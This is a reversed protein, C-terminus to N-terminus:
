PKLEILPLPLPTLTMNKSQQITTVLIFIIKKEELVAFFLTGPPPHPVHFLWPIVIRPWGREKKQWMRKRTTPLPPLITWSTTRTPYPHPSLTLPCDLLLLQPQQRPQWLQPLRLTRHPRTTTPSNIPPLLPHQHHTNLLHTSFTHQSPPNILHSSPLTSLLSYLIHTLHHYPPNIHHTSPTHSFTHQYPPNVQAILHQHMARARAEM